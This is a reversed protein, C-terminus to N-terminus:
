TRRRWFHLILQPEERGRCRKLRVAMGKWGGVDLGVPLVVLLDPLDGILPAASNDSQM